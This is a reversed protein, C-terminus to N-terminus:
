SHLKTRQSLSPTLWYRNFKMRRLIRAGTGCPIQVSHLHTHFLPSLLQYSKISFYILTRLAVHECIRSTVGILSDLYLGKTISVGTSVTILYTYIATDHVCLALLKEGCELPTTANCLTSFRIFVQLWLASM